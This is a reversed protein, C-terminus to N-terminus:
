NPRLCIGGAGEGVLEGRLYTAKVAGSLLLGDYPSIKHRHHLNKAIVDFQEEPDFVVLDADHGVAISGKRAALGALRAPNACMWRAIDALTFGRLSAHTWMIPLSLQLSSIGGWAEFFDGRKLDPPCPSHDSVVIGLRHERLAQWLQERNMFDRIPPACKYELAGDAIEEAAFALYHPCTEATILEQKGDLLDLSEASSIHAIHIRASFEASLRVMMEIARREAEVPRSSLWTEYRQRDGQPERLHEPSEAHVLLPLGGLLPLALRLDSEGVHTFEDVGTPSLFCKYGLIGRDRLPELDAANGPVVGGWFGVDVWCHAAAAARKAELAAVNTTAPISNLPMDILTTVGGAAAARTASEFGEWDTRGPDNIHVHTDVLGPLVALDGYDLCDTSVDDYASVALIRGGFVHISAPAVSDPLVVRKSRLQM